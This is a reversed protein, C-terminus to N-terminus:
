ASGSSSHVNLKAHQVQKALILPKRRREMVIYHVRPPGNPPPSLEHSLRWWFFFMANWFSFLFHDSDLTSLHCANQIFASQTRAGRNREGTTTAPRTMLFAVAVSFICSGFLIIYFLSSFFCVCYIYALVTARGFNWVFCFYTMLWRLLMLSFITVFFTINMNTDIAGGGRRCGSISSM